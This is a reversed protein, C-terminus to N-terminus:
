ALDPLHPTRFTHVWVLYEGGASLEFRCRALGQDRGGGVPVSICKGSAISADPTVAMPPILRMASADIRVIGPQTEKFLPLDNAILAGPKLVLLPTKANQTETDQLTITKAIEADGEVAMFTKTGPPIFARRVTIAQSNMFWLVPFDGTSASPGTLEFTANKVDDLVLMPRADKERYSCRLGNVQLGTVHRCYLGYAPLRGFMQAEPYHKIVTEDPVERDVLESGGGGEYELSLNSLRVNEVCHGPIGTISSEFMSNVATINQLVVNRITGPVRPEVQQTKSSNGGRHGLRIFIPAKLNNMTLNSVVINSLHAGDVSEIAVGALTRELPNTSASYLECDRFTIHDFNDHTETGIKLANCASWIRCNAVMINRSPHTHGPETSKLVVGDDGTIIDCEKLTVDVSSNIDIGDTNPGHLYNRITVREATVAACRQLHVTWSPSNTLTINRLTVNTCRTLHIFNPRKLALYNFQATGRWASNSYTQAKKVWFASGRGDITGGGEIAIDSAGTASLLKGSPYDDLSTSGLLTAGPMVKLKVGSKLLLSGTLYIGKPVVVEGGGAATCADIAKQLAVTNKTVGDGKAGHLTVDFPTAATLALAPLFFLALHRM